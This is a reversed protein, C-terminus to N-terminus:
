TIGWVVSRNKWAIRKASNLINLLKLTCKRTFISPAYIGVHNELPTLSISRLTLTIFRRLASPPCIKRPQEVHTILKMDYWPHPLKVFINELLRLVTYTRSKKPLWSPTYVQLYLRPWDVSNYFYKHTFTITLLFNWVSCWTWDSRKM